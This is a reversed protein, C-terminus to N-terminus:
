AAVACIPVQCASNEGLISLYRLTGVGRLLVEGRIKSSHSNVNSNNTIVIYSTTNIIIIIYSIHTYM